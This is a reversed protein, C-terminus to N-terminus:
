FCTRVQLLRCWIMASRWWTWCCGSSSISSSSLFFLSYVYLKFFYLSNFSCRFVWLGVFRPDDPAMLDPWEETHVQTVQRVGGDPLWLSFRRLHFSGQYSTSLHEVRSGGELPISSGQCEEGVDEPWYHHAKRKTKELLRTIMVIVSVQCM